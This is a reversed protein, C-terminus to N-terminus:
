EALSHRGRLCLFPPRRGSLTYQQLILFQGKARCQRDFYAIGAVAFGFIQISM